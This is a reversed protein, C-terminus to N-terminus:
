QNKKMRKSTLTAPCDKVHYLSNEPRCYKCLGYGCKHWWDLKEDFIITNCERCRDDMSEVSDSESDCDPGDDSDDDSASRRKEPFKNESRSKESFKNESRGKESFKKM